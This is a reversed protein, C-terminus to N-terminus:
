LVFSERKVYVSGSPQVQSQYLSFESAEFSGLENVALTAIVHRLEVVSCGRPIRALTLHPRFPKTEPPVGLAAMAADLRAHLALLTDPARVGLCLIKPSHPNPLWGVGGLTIPIPQGTKLAHLAGIVPPLEEPPVEGLFKTTIHLNSGPSWRAEASPRLMQIFGMAKDRLTDPIDIATFLRM